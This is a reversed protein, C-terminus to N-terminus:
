PRGSGASAPPRRWWRSLPLALLKPRVFLLDVIAPGPQAGIESKYGADGSGWSIRRVGAAAAQEFDKLLLTRGASHASFREDFNNAIQYRTAGVQLGFGFAAPTGGVSLITGFIMRAIVPDAAVKEWYLRRSPDAFQFAAAHGLRALWSNREIAAIAERDAACWTAGSFSHLKVLGAKALQKERWRNKKMASASPWPGEAQLAAVDIEFCTGLPRTLVSWGAARAAEVLRTAGPDDDFTPGLRWVSGLARKLEPAGLMAALEAPGADAAVAVSRFPWYCGAVERMELPGLRRPVLPFLALPSGDGRLAAWRRVPGAAEAWAGRLFRHAPDAIEAVADADAATAPVVHICGHSLQANRRMLM